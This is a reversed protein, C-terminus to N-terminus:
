LRRGRGCTTCQGEHESLLLQVVIRRSDRVKKSNTLISMGERVPTSCSSVLRPAGEVEVMCVRCAGLATRGELYCLSPIHIGAQMAAELICIGDAANLLRGNITIDCM